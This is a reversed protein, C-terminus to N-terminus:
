KALRRRNRSVRKAYVGLAKKALRYKKSGRLAAATVAVQVEALASMKETIMRTTETEAKAGYACVAM